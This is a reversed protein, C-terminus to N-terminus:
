AHYFYKKIFTAFGYSATSVLIITAGSSINVYYSLMLGIMFHILGLICSFFILKKLEGVFMKAISAPITLMAIVLIIGVAKILVVISIAVLLYLVLEFREINYDLVRLLEEDFLYAKWYEFFLFVIGILIINLALMFWLDTRSVTLIDGFLYSTMDPPYGSRISIFVIGLAMGAAWMMGLLTDESTKTSRKIKIVGFAALVSFILGGIIPKIGLLYGLGIGGFSTHSIGGSMMVLKKEVIIVGIIGCAVSALISAWFANQLFQYSLFDSIM